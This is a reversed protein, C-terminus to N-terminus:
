FDVPVLMHIPDGYQDKSLPSEDKNIPAGDLSVLGSRQIPKQKNVEDVLGKPLDYVQGPILKWIQIADGAWRCYPKELREHKGNKNLYRAKVIKSDEKKQKECIAKTKPSMHKFDDFAVSNGITNILGHMEGNQTVM